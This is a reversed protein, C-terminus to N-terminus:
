LCPHQWLQILNFLCMLMNLTSYNLCSFALLDSSPIASSQISNYLETRTRTQARTHIYPSFFPLPLWAASMELSRSQNARIHPLKRTREVLLRRGMARFSMIICPVEKKVVFRIKTWKSSIYKKFQGLTTPITQLANRGPATHWAKERRGGPHEARHTIM